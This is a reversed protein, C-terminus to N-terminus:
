FLLPLEAPSTSIMCSRTAGVVIQWPGPLIYVLSDAPSVHLLFLSELLPRSTTAMLLSWQRQLKIKGDEHCAHRQGHVAECVDWVGAGLEGPMSKIAHTCLSFQEMEILCIGLQLMSWIEALAVHVGFAIPVCSWTYASRRRIRPGYKYFM